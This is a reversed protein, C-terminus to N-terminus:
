RIHSIGILRRLFPPQGRSLIIRLITSKGSNNEGILVAGRQKRWAITYRRVAAYSGSYGLRRLEEFLRVLTLRERAPKGENEVLLADVRDRRSRAMARNQSSPGQPGIRTCASEKCRNNRM